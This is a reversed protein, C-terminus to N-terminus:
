DLFEIKNFDYNKILKLKTIKSGFNLNVNQVFFKTQGLTHHRFLYFSVEIHPRIDCGDWVVILSNIWHTGDFKMDNEVLMWCWLIRKLSFYRSFACSIQRASKYSAFIGKRSKKSSNVFTILPLASSPSFPQM